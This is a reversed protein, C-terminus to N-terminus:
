VAEGRFINISHLIVNSRPQTKQKIYVDGPAPIEAKSCARLHTDSCHIPLSSHAIYPREFVIQADLAHAARNVCAARAIYVRLAPQSVLRM